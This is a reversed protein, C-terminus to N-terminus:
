SKLSLAEYISAFDLDKEVMEEFKKLKQPSNFPTKILAQELDSITEPTNKKVVIIPVHKNEARYVVTPIPKIGNTLVLCRTSTEMAAMQMDPRDGRVVVAKNDKRNFYDIGSGPTMAGLMINEVLEGTDEPCTVIEGDLLEAMEGVNMGLLTRKEPFVGLVRIGAEEFQATINRGVAELKPEPVFSVIVGILRKGLENVVRSISSPALNASYRLVIIVRANLAEVFRYCALTAVNDVSLGGLGEMLGVDKGKAAAAHAKKVKQILDDSDDTLGDWLEKQTMRLPSLVEPAEELDLNDKLFAIDKLASIDKKEALRVPMFFGVKKGLSILKKGISACVVTKGAPEVSSIYLNIM